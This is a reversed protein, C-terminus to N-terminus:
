PHWDCKESTNHKKKKKKQKKRIAKREGELSEKNVGLKRIQKIITDLWVSRIGTEYVCCCVKCIM